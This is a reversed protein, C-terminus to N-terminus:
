NVQVFTIAPWLLATSRPISSARDSPAFRATINGTLMGDCQEKILGAASLSCLRNSRDHELRRFGWQQMIRVHLPM